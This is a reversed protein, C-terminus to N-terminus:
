RRPLTRDHNYQVLYSAVELVVFMMLVIGTTPSTFLVHLAAFFLMLYILKHLRNWWKQLIRVSFDNSTLFLPTGFGLAIMGLFQFTLLPTFGFRLGPLWYALMSHSVTFLYTLIGFHRRFMMLFIKLEPLIGFRRIIGPVLTFCLMAVSLLGFRKGITYLLIFVRVNTPVLLVLLILTASCIIEATVFGRIIQVRRPATWIQIQRM